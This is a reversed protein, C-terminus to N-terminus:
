RNSQSQQAIGFYYAAVYCFLTILFIWKCFGIAHRLYEFDMLYIITEGVIRVPDQLVDWSNWRIFRGIYVGFSSLLLVAIAFIWGMVTGLYKRVLAHVSALSATSIALGLMAAFLITFLHDWFLNEEWFRIGMGASIPYRYFPHLLDTMLYAANPYFFLWLLGVGLFLLLKLMKGRLLSVMDLVIALGLPIWALFTNWLMFLYPPRGGEPLQTLVVYRMGILTAIFLILYLIWKSPYGLARWDHM